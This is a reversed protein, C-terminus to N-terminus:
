RRAAALTPSRRCGRRSGAGEVIAERLTRLVIASLPEGRIETFEATAVSKAGAKERRSVARRWRNPVVQPRGTNVRRLCVNYCRFADRDVTSLLSNHPLGASPNREIQPPSAGLQRQEGSSSPATRGRALGVSVAYQPSGGRSSPVVSFAAGGCSQRGVRHYQHWLAGRRRNPRPRPHCHCRITSRPSTAMRSSRNAGIGSNERRAGKDGNSGLRVGPSCRQARLKGQHLHQAAAGRGDDVGAARPRDQPQAVRGGVFIRRTSVTPRM